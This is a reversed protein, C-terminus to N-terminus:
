RGASPSCPLSLADGAFAQATWSLFFAGRLVPMFGADLVPLLSSLEVEGIMFVMTFLFFVLIPVVAAESVRCIVELGLYVAYLSFLVMLINFVALPTRPMFATVMFDSFKLVIVVTMSIFFLVFGFGVLKGPFAGSRSRWDAAPKVPTVPVYCYVLYVISLGFRREACLLDLCGEGGTTSCLRPPLTDGYFYHKGDTASYGAM